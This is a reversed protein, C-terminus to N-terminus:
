PANEEDEADPEDRDALQLHTIIPSVHHRLMADPDNGEWAEFYARHVAEIAEVDAAYTDIKM